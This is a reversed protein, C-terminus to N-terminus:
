KGELDATGTHIGVWKHLWVSWDKKNCNLKWRTILYFSSDDTVHRGCNSWDMENRICINNLNFSLVFLIIYLTCTTQQWCTKIKLRAINFADQQLTWICHQDFTVCMWNTIKKHARQLFYTLKLSPRSNCISLPTSCKNSMTWSKWLQGAGQLPGVFFNHILHRSTM